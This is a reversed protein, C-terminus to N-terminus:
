CLDGGGIRVLFSCVGCGAGVELVRQAAVLEPNKRLRECLLVAGRWVVTGLEKGGQLLAIDGWPYPGHCV